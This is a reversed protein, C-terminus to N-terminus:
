FNQLYSTLLFISHFFNPALQGRWFLSHFVYVYVQLDGRIPEELGRYRDIIDICNNICEYMDRTAVIM